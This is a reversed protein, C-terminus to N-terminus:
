FNLVSPCEEESIHCDLAVKSAEAYTVIKRGLKSLVLRFLVWAVPTEPELEESVMESVAKRIKGFGEDEAEGRGATTNDVILPDHLITRYYKANCHSHLDQWM